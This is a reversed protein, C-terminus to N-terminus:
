CQFVVVSQVTKSDVIVYQVSHNTCFTKFKTDFEEFNDFQDGVKM